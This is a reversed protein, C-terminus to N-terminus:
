VLSSNHSSAASRAAAPPYSLPTPQMAQSGGHFSFGTSLSSANSLQRSPGSYPYSTPNPQMSVTAPTMRGTSPAYPAASVGATMAPLGRQSAAVSGPGTGALSTTAAGLYPYSMPTPSAIRSTSGGYQSGGMQGNGNPAATGLDAFGSTSGPRAPQGNPQYSVDGNVSRPAPQPNPQYLFPQNEVPDSNRSAAAAATTATSTATGNGNGSYKSKAAEKKKYHRYVFFAIIAAATLVVVPVVVAVVIVWTEVGSSSVPAIDISVAVFTVAKEFTFTDNEVQNMAQCIFTVQGLGVMSDDVTLTENESVTVNGDSDVWVITPAPRGNSTCTIVTGVDLSEGDTINPEFMIESVGHLVYFYTECSATYTPAGDGVFSLACTFNQQDDAAELTVNMEVWVYSINSVSGSEIVVPNDGTTSWTLSPILSTDQSTTIAYYYMVHCLALADSGAVVESGVDPCQVDEVAVVSAFLQAKNILPLTCEYKSAVSSDTSKIILNYYGDGSDISYKNDTVTGDASSYIRNYTLSTVDLVNWKRVSM